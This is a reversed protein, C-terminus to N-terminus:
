PLFGLFVYSCALDRIEDGLPRRVEKRRATPEGRRERSQSPGQGARVRKESKRERGGDSESKRVRSEALDRSTEELTDSRGRENVALKLDRRTFSLACVSALYRRPYGACLLSLARRRNRSEVARALERNVSARDERRPILHRGNTRGDSRGVSWGVTRGGRFSRARSRESKATFNRRTADRPSAALRVRRIRSSPKRTVGCVGRCRERGRLVSIRENAPLLVGCAVSRRGDRYARYVRSPREARSVSRDLRRHDRNTSPPRARDMSRGRSDVRAARM